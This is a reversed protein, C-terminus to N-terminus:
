ILIQLSFDLASSKVRQGSKQFHIKNSLLHFERNDEAFILKLNGQWDVQFEGQYLVDHSETIFNDDFRKDYIKFRGDYTLSIKLEIIDGINNKMKITNTTKADKVYRIYPEQSTYTGDDPYKVSSCGSVLFVSLFLYIM